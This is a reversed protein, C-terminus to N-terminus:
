QEPDKKTSLFRFVIDVPNVKLENAFHEEVAELLQDHNDIFPTDKRKDMGFFYQYRRLTGFSLKDLRIGNTNVPKKKYEPKIPKPPRKPMPCRPFVRKTSGKIKGTEPQVFDRVTKEASDHPVAPSQDNKSASM